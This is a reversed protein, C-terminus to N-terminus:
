AKNIRVETRRNKQRGEATSNSAIPQSEGYGKAIVRASSIGKSILYNRVADARAKSLKLNPEEDGVNDTHGAIEINIDDKLKLYELLEKLEKYSSKTLTSKGSEFEVNDLTFTKPLEFQITITMSLYSEDKGLAPIEIKNYDDADGISKIKILYTEGGKLLFDLKGESDSVGKYVTKSTLGEFIIKEGKQPINDFNTILVQVPALNNTDSVQGM